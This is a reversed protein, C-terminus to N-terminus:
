RSLHPCTGFDDVRTVDVLKRKASVPFRRALMSTEKLAVVAFQTASPLHVIPMWVDLVDDVHSSRM